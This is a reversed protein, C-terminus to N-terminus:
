KSCSGMHMSNQRNGCLVATTTSLWSCIYVIGTLGWRGPQFEVHDTSSCTPGPMMAMWRQGGVGTGPTGSGDGGAVALGAWDGALDGAEALFFGAAPLADVAPPDELAGEGSFGATDGALALFRGAAAAAPPEAAEGALGVEELL